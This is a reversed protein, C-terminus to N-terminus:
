INLNVGLSSMKKMLTAKSIGLFEATSAIDNQNLLLASKLMYKEYNVMEHEYRKTGQPPESSFPLPPSHSTTQLELDSNQIDCGKEPNIDSNISDIKLIPTIKVDNKKPLHKTSTATLNDPPLSPDVIHNPLLDLTIKPGKALIVCREVVNRLERVNGPWHYKTMALLAETSFGQITEKTHQERLEQLFSNVLLPIDSARERLSPLEIVGTNLRYLLDLRFTGKDVCEYLSCNSASIIRVDVRIERNGGIREFTRTQLVRLLKAQVELSMNSMEDLFLTGGNAREFRGLHLTYAGTFAGKEHGFLESELLEKSLTSCDLVVFPKRARPSIAHIARAVLEKGCGTEGTIMVNASTPAWLFIQNYIEVMTPHSGIINLLRGSAKVQELTLNKNEIEPREVITQIGHIAM